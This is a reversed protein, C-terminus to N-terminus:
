DLDYRVDFSLRNGAATVMLLDLLEGATFAVNATLTCTNGTDGTNDCTCSTTLDNGSGDELTITATGTDTECWVETVTSAAKFRHLSSVDDTDALGGSDFLTKTFNEPFSDIAAGSIAPATVIETASISGAPLIVEADGTASEDFRAMEVSNAIISIEGAAGSGIGDSSNTRNPNVTPNTTTAAENRIAASTALGGQLVASNIFWSVSGGLSVALVDSTSEYIGTDGGFSLTPTVADNVSPLVFHKGGDFTFDTGGGDSDITLANVDADTNVIGVLDGGSPTGASQEILFQTGTTFSSEFDFAVTEATASATYSTATDVSNTLGEWAAAGAANDIFEEGGDKSGDCNTDHFLRDGTDKAICATNAAVRDGIAIFTPFAVYDTTGEFARLLEIAGATISIEDVADQTLGSDVDLKYPRINPDTASPNLNILAFSNAFTGELSGGTVQFGAVGGATFGLTDVDPLYLGTNGDTDLAVAPTVNDSTGPFVVQAKDVSDGKIRMAELLSGGVLVDFTLAADEEADTGEIMIWSLRSFEQSVEDSDNNFFSLFAEDDPSSIAKFPAAFRIVEGSVVDGPDSVRLLSTGGSGVIELPDVDNDTISLALLTGTTPDGTTQKISFQDAAFASQFDFTVVEASDDSLYDTSANTSNTLGEWTASGGTTLDTVTGGTDRIFLSDADSYLYVGGTPNSTPATVLDSVFAISDGAATGAAGESFTWAEDGGAVITVGDGGTGGVGSDPDTNYPILSPNTISAVENRLQASGGLFARIGNADFIVETTGNIGFELSNADPQYIGDDGAGFSLTPNAVDDVQPLLLQTSDVGDGQLRMAEVLSGAVRVDFSMAGDEETTTVDDAIWSIRSFEEPTSGSDENFLSLYGEDDDTPSVRHVAILRAIEGSATDGPDKVGFRLESGTVLGISDSGVRGLGSNSDNHWSFTPSGIATEFISLRFGFDGFEGTDVGWVWSGDFKVKGGGALWDFKDDTYENIGADGDGFALTPNATDNNQPLFLQSSATSAGLTLHKSTDDWTMDADGAFVTGTDHYQIQTVSGGPTGGGGTTLNTVTGGTDRIFLDDADSYLYVGATPNSTPATVVDSVFAISDGAATGAAGESFTWAEDGGAVITFQDAGASGIGTDTDTKIPSFVPNASTAGENLLAFGSAHQTILQNSWFTFTHNANVVVELQNDAAEQLGTNGDGWALTPNSSDDVLPLVLQTSDVGDGQLRMAEVLSGAVRVDFSLSGDEETTTVDDAIWSIRSFEESASGSDDNFFSLYAEDDDAPTARGPAAFRIVEGSAVGGPDSVRLLSTGGSGVIELPDVDSDAISLALLSGTTPDGTTQKLTFQDASFASQFDFTVVEATNDSTYDTASDSSNTLGEWTAAGGATLDTVTGGTDRIYLKDVDSYLLVGGTPNSSPATAVDSVWAVSDGASTGYAAESFTWAEDAGVVMSMQDLAGSGVGTDADGGTPLLTPNTATADEYVVGPGGSIQAYLGTGDQFFWQETSNLAISITDTQSEYIGSDADDFAITPTDEQNQAPFITQVFGTAAGSIRMGETLSGTQTVSFALAAEEGAETTDEIIATIRAHEETGGADELQVSIYSEDNATATARDAGVLRVLETSAADVTANFTLNPATDAVRAVEFGGAVLSLQDTAAHGLGTNADDYDPVVTTTTSTPDQNLLAWGFDGPSDRLVAYTDYGRIAIIPFGNTFVAVEDANVYQSIGIGAEGSAWGLQSLLGDYTSTGWLHTGGDTDDYGMIFAETLTGAKQIDFRISSEEAADTVVDLKTTIRAQEEFGGADEMIFALHFEDAATPTTRDPGSLRFVEGSAVDGPDSVRVFEEGGSILSLQGVAASGIGLDDDAVRPVFVPNTASTDENMLAPSLGTDTDGVSGWSSATFWYERAGAFSLSLGNDAHEYFGTDYSTGFGLTPTVADNSSPLLLRSTATVAGITLANSAWTLDDDGDLTGANNFQVETTSGGPAALASLATYSSGGSDCMCGHQNSGTGTSCDSASNGDKIFYVRAPDCAAPLESIDMDFWSYGHTAALTPAAFAALLLGLLLTKRM